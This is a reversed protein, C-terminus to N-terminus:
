EVFQVEKMSFLRLGTKTEIELKGEKSIGVIRGIFAKGNKFIHDEGFWYLNQLYHERLANVGKARLTMYRAEIRSCVENLMDALDHKRGTLQSLSIASEVNFSEQNINIGIGVISKEIRGQKLFNQILIGCIKKNHYYIDNPWKVQFGDDFQSLFDLIGLSICINLDFQAAIPVFTPRLFVSFTLNTGPASEWSNGRQGKGAIQKDTIVISGETFSTKGSYIVAEENTSHCSPLFIVTKGVFLTKALSKYM